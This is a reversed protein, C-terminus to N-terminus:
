GKLLFFFHSAAQIAIGSIYFNNFHKSFLFFLPWVYHQSEFNSNLQGPRWNFNQIPEGCSHASLRVCSAKCTMSALRELEFKCKAKIGGEYRCCPQKKGVTPFIGGKCKEKYGGLFEIFNGPSTCYWSNDSYKTVCWNARGELTCRDRETIALEEGIKYEGTSARQNYLCDYSLDCCFPASKSVVVFSLIVLLSLIAQLM